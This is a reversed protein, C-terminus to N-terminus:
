NNIKINFNENEKGDHNDLDILKILVDFVYFDFM